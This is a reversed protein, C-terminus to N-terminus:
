VSRFAGTAARARDQLSNRAILSQTRERLWRVQEETMQESWFSILFLAICLLGFLQQGVRKHATQKVCWVGLRQTIQLSILCTLGSSYWFNPPLRKLNHILQALWETRDELSTASQPTNLKQTILARHRYAAHFGSSAACLLLFNAFRSQSRLVEELVQDILRNAVHVARLGVVLAVALSASSMDGLEGRMHSLSSLLGSWDSVRDQMQEWKQMMFLAM